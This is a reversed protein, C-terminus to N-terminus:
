DLYQKIIKFTVLTGNILSDDENIQVPGIMEISKASIKQLLEIRGKTILMGQSEHDGLIEKKNKVSNEIGVGNDMIEIRIHDLHDTITISILGKKDKLPLIGHIISNEVFPQLFMAPVKLLDVEVHKEIDIKYSFKNKFRMTELELYLELRELEDSLAVMGNETHSSDLNKRILKAFRSLYKNASMKDSSNIYFQISNLANFIFHRNMSANLSQQELRTLKNQFELKLQYNKRDLRQVRIRDLFIVILSILLFCLLYFWWTRYFPPLVEFYTEYINSDVGQKTTAKFLLKYQGPPLNTFSVNPNDTYPSWDESFGDLYYSYNLGKPNSLYIGDFEFSINNNKYDVTLNKDNNITNGIEESSLRDFNVSIDTLQIKPPINNKYKDRDSLDMKMLGAVTGFWLQNDTDLYSSNLNTELDVLGSNIDYHHSVKTNFSVEYLGNNTGVFMVTDVKHIFNIYDAGGNNELSYNILKNNKEIFLGNETGVWLTNNDDREICNISADFRHILKSKNDFVKYIQNQSAFFLTDKFEIFDRVNVMSKVDEMYPKVVKEEVDFVATGLSTGILVDGNERKQLGKVRNSPLGDEEYYSYWQNYDYVFLGFNNGLFILNDSKTMNWVINIIYSEKAIGGNKDLTFVGKDFTSFWMKGHKDELLSIVLDSPFNNKKNYHTFMGGTYRLLGKGSTGFWINNERDEFVTSVDNIPLGTRENFVINEDGKLLVVGNKSNSWFNGKSDIITNRFPNDEDKYITENKNDELSLSQILGDYSTAILKNDKILVSSYSGKAFSNVMKFKSASYELVGERTALYLKDNDSTLRRIRDPSDKIYTLKEKDIDIYFLGSGNTSIYIKNKFSHVDTINRSAINNPFSISCFSDATCQYSVGKDHGVILENEIIELHTIRNNLLGDSKGFSEFKNGDFKALGGFTGLWLYGESDQVITNVQSQPLGESTSYNIFSYRQSFSTSLVFLSLFALTVKMM